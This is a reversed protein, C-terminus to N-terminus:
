DREILWEVPVLTVWQLIPDGDIISKKLPLFTLLLYHLTTKTLAWEGGYTPSVYKGTFSRLMVQMHFGEWLAHTLLTAYYKDTSRRRMGRPLESDKINETIQEINQVVQMVSRPQLGAHELARMAYANKPLFRIATVNHDKLITEALEVVQLLSMLDGDPHNYNEMVQM